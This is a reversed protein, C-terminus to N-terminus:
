AKNHRGEPHLSKGLIHESAHVVHHGAGVILSLEAALSSVTAALALGLLGGILAGRTSSEGIPSGYGYFSRAELEDVSSPLELSTDGLFDAAELDAVCERALMVDGCEATLSGITEEPITRTDTDIM